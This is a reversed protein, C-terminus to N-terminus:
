IRAGPWPSPRQGDVFAATFSQHGLQERLSAELETVPHNGSPTGTLGIGMQNRTAAVAGLLTAAHRLDGHAAVAEALGELADAIAYPQGLEIATQLARRHEGLAISPQGGVTLARGLETLSAVLGENWATAENLAVARRALEEARRVDGRRLAHHALEKTIWGIMRPDGAQGALARSEDLMALARDDDGSAEATRARWVLSWAHAWDDRHDRALTVAHDQTAAAEDVDGLLMQTVGLYILAILGREPAGEQRWLEVSGEFARQAALVDGLLQTHVGLGELLRASTATDLGPTSRAQRLWRIAEESAAELAWFWALSCVLRVGVSWDGSSLAWELTARVNPVERRLGRLTTQQDAGRLRPDADECREALWRALRLRAARSDAPHEDLREAAYARLSDLLHYSDDGSAVVLSRDVMATVLELPGTALGEAAVATASEITFRGAFVGLRRFFTAQEDDLLEYSWGIAARLSQQRADPAPGLRSLLSFRDALRALVASPSLVRMRAAALEIALPLGDVMRCIRVVDEANSETLEFDQRASRGRDCFLRVAAADAVEGITADAGPLSLPPVLWTAEGAVSLSQRSTALVRLAPCRRLLSHALTACADVLHECTDLVLLGPADDIRTAVADVPDAAHRVGVRRALEFAVVDPERIGALDLLWVPQRDAEARAVELALRTKGVGAPGVLAVMRSEALTERIHGLERERGILRTTPAPLRPRPSGAPARASPGGVGPAPGAEALPVWDLSPEHGLIRQQLQRLGSAPEIGLRDVLESRARDYARLAEAQRGSRYLAVMLQGRLRERLPFEAVVQRIGPIVQEHQGLLLQAEIEAELLAARLDRLREIEAVVFPEHPVDQLPEGRWLGLATRLGRVTAEVGQRTAESPTLRARASRVAREFRHVDVQDASVDLAYGGAATRLAATGEEDRSGLTRRLYSVLVQVANTADAPPREGWVRDVLVDIPVVQRGRLLLCVLLTRARGRRLRVLNRDCRVELPGLLAFEVTCSRVSAPAGSARPRSGPLRIAPAM